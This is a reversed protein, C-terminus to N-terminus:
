QCDRGRQMINLHAVNCNVHYDADDYLVANLEGLCSGGKIGIHYGPLCSCNLEVMYPDVLCENYCDGNLLPCDALRMCVIIFAELEVVTQCECTIRGDGDDDDDDENLVLSDSRLKYM